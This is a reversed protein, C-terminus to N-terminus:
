SDGVLIATELQSRRLVHIAYQRVPSAILLYARTPDEDRWLRLDEGIIPEEGSKDEFVCGEIVLREHSEPPFADLLAVAAALYLAAGHKEKGRRAEYGKRINVALKEVDGATAGCLDIQLEPDNVGLEILGAQELVSSFEDLTRALRQTSDLIEGPTMFETPEFGLQDYTVVDM